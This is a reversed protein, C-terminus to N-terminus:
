LGFIALHEKSENPSAQVKRTINKVDELDLVGLFQWNGFKDINVIKLKSCDVFSDHELFAYKERKIPLHWDKINKPMNQNINSNIIVGGYINGDCDFGLVIFFKNRSTDGPKPTIGNREDMKIRYVNGIKISDRAIREIDSRNLADFLKTM